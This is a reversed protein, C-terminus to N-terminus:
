RTEKAPSQLEKVATELETIFKQDAAVDMCHGDCNSEPGCTHNPYPQEAFHRAMVLSQQLLELIQQPGHQDGKSEAYDKPVADTNHTGSDLEHLTAKLSELHQEKEYSCGSEEYDDKAQDVLQELAVRLTAVTEESILLWKM